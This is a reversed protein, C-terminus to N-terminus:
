RKVNLPMDGIIEIMSAVMKLSMFPMVKRSSIFWQYTHKDSTIM